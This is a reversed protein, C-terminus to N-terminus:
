SASNLVMTTNGTACFIIIPKNYLRTINNLSKISYTTEIPWKLVTACWWHHRHLTVCIESIKWRWVLTVVSRRAYM